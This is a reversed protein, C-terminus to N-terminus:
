CAWWLIGMPSQDWSPLVKVTFQMGGHRGPITHHASGMGTEPPLRNTGGRTM